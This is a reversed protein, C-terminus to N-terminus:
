AAGSCRGHGNSCGCCTLVVITGAPEVPLEMLSVQGLRAGSYSRLIFRGDPSIREYTGLAAVGHDDRGVADADLPLYAVHPVCADGAVEQAGEPAACVAGALLAGTLIGSARQLSLSM